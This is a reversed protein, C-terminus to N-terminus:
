GEAGLILATSTNWNRVYRLGGIGTVLAYERNKVQRAGGKGFVQRVGEILNVGGGALGPQGASIQGGGTNIPLDGDHALNHEKIFAAGQGRKAFGLMELKIMVAILFDDYPQYSGMDQPKLGAQAFAKQGAICHGTETIDTLNENARYNTREGYGLPVAFNDLGKEKARKRTTMLLGNGGDCTMVCDLLRIPDAIMRSNLYDEVTIPKRLKECANDNLLAHNRQTVALKGLAEVDLGYLHDYRRSLLGFDAPGGLLGQPYQWEDHFSRMNLTAQDTAQTDINLLLITTCLGADLAAAARAVAGVASSGGIDVTQCFDLELGLFEATTQSWFCNGAGSISANILMGDIEAKETGTSAILSELVEGGLEWVHRGARAEIKTEAFGIIANDRLAM